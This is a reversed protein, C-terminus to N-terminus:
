ANERPMELARAPDKSGDLVDRDGLPENLVITFPTPPNSPCNAPKNHPRVGVSFTVAEDDEDLSVLEVRGEADDGSNCDRETVLVHLESSAPDPPRAPDLTVSANDVSARCGGALGVVLAAVVAGVMARRVAGTGGVRQTGM